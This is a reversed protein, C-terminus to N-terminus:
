RPLWLRMAAVDDHERGLSATLADIAERMPRAAQKAQGAEALLRATEFKWFQLSAHEASLTKQKLRLSEQYHALLREYEPQTWPTVPEKPPGSVGRIHPPNRFEPTVRQLYVAPVAPEDPRDEAPCAVYSVGRAPASLRGCPEGKGAPPETQLAEGTIQRQTLGWAYPKECDPQGAPCPNPTLYLTDLRSANFLAGLRIKGEALDYILYGPGRRAPVGLALVVKDMGTVGFGWPGRLVVVFPKLPRGPGSEALPIRLEVSRDYGEPEVESALEVWVIDLTPLRGSKGVRDRSGALSLTFKLATGFLLISLILLIREMKDSAFRRRKKKAPTSEEEVLHVNHPM